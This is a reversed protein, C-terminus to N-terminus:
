KKSIGLPLLILKKKNFNRKLFSKVAFSSHLIIKDSNNYEFLENKILNKYPYNSNLQNIKNERLLIKKVELIHSSGRILFSKISLKKCVTISKKASGSFGIFNKYRLKAIKKSALHDFLENTFNEILNGILYYGRNLFVKQNFRKIIEIFFYSTVQSKKLGYKKVHFYPYTTVLHLKKVSKNLANCYDFASFKGNVSFVISM